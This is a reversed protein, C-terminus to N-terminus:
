QGTPIYVKNAAVLDANPVETILKVSQLGPKKGPRAFFTLLYQHDLHEQLDAFYPTFSVSGGIGLNYGEGGTDETVQALYYQGWDMWLYSHGEHGIGPSYIAFVVVGGRQADQVAVDADPNSPGFEGIPRDIGDTIMLVEHRTGNSPWRKLLNSLSQYPSGGGIGKPLRLAKAARTHDTTFDQVTEVTGHHMYGVAIATTAPQSDIFQRLEDLHPGIGDDSGDDLLLFLELGAKEGQLPVWDTVQLRDKDQRVMVDEKSLVPVQKGRLAEVTVIMHVPVTARPAQGQTLLFIGSIVLFTAGFLNRMQGGSGDQAAAILTAQRM